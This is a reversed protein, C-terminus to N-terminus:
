YKHWSKIDRLLYPRNICAHCADVGEGGMCPLTVILVISFTIAKIMCSSVYYYIGACVCHTCCELSMGMLVSEIYFIMFM